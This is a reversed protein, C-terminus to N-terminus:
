KFLDNFDIPDIATTTGNLGWIRSDPSMKGQIMQAVLVESRCRSAFHVMWPPVLGIGDARALVFVEDNLELWTEAARAVADGHSLRGIVSNPAVVSRIWLHCRSFDRPNVALSGADVTGHM